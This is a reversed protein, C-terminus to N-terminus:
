QWAALHDLACNRWTLDRVSSTRRQRAEDDDDSRVARLLGDGISATSLPDVLVAQDNAAVSPCNASAVVRTGANLAEVPPLGWGEARPVYAVVAAERYLGLLDARDVLGLVVASGTGVAGWGEPGVLVLPGLEPAQRRAEDHAVLLREVNKRPERTGAHLTFPGNVGAAALLGVIRDRSSPSVGHEDVGLRVRHLRAADFGDAVLREHLLPSSALIRIDGRRRLYGLRAEHFAAGAKTTASPEDRWLLDHLAASRVTRRRPADFPGAMSTAHVVDADAPVGLGRWRWARTLVAEPLGVARYRMPLATVIPQTVRPGVGVLELAPDVEHLGRVLGQVYSGIGGPQRRALQDVSVAILRSM